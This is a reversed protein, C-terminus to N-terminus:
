QGARRPGADVLRGIDAVAGPPLADVPFWAVGHSEASAAPEAGARRWRRTACTSTSGCRGFASSLEHRGPRGARRRAAAARRDGSEERGERLAAAALSEDDAEVHGGFQAWFGGKRHHTLLVREGAADLM